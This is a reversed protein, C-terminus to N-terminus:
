EIVIVVVVKIVVVVVVVVVVRDSYSSSIKGIMNYKM